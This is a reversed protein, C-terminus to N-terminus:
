LSGPCNITKAARLPRPRPRRPTRPFAPLNLELKPAPKSQQARARKKVHRKARLCLSRLSTIRQPITTELALTRMKSPGDNKLMRQSDLEHRDAWQQRVCEQVLEVHKEFCLTLPIIQILNFIM